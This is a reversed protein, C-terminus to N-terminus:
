KKFGFDRAFAENLGTLKGFIAFMLGGYIGGPIAEAFIGYLRKFLTPHKIPDCVKSLLRGVRTKLREEIPVAMVGPLLFAYFTTTGALAIATAVGVEKAFHETFFSEGIPKATQIGFAIALALMYKKM